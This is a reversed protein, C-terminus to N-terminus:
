PMEATLYEKLLERVEVVVDRRGSQIAYTLAARARRPADKRGEAFEILAHLSTAEAVIPLDGLEHALALTNAVLPRAGSWQGRAVKIRAQTFHFHTKWWLSRPGSALASEDVKALADAAQELQNVKLLLLARRRHIDALLFLGGEAQSIEQATELHRLAEPYRAEVQALQALGQHALVRGFPLLKPNATVLSLCERYLTQASDYGAMQYWAAALNLMAQVQLPREGLGTALRVAEEGHLVAEPAARKLGEIFTWCILNHTKARILLGIDSRELLVRARVQAEDFRREELLNLLRNYEDVGLERTPPQHQM